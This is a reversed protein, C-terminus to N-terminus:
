GEVYTVMYDTQFWFTPKDDKRVPGSKGYRRDARLCAQVVTSNPATGKYGNLRNSVLLNLARADARSYHYVDVQVRSTVVGTPARLALIDNADIESV